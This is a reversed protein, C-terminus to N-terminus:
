YEYKHKELEKEYGDEEEAMRVYDFRGNEDLPIDFYEIMLSRNEKYERYRGRMVDDDAWQEWEELIDRYYVIKKTIVLEKSAFSREEGDFFGDYYETGKPIICLVVMNGSQYDEVCRLADYFDCYSHFAGGTLGWEFLGNNDDGYEQALDRSFANRSLNERDIYGDLDIATEEKEKYHTGPTVKFGQFPTKFKLQDASELVQYDNVTLCKFCVIDEKAVKPKPKYGEAEKEVESLLHNNPDFREPIPTYMKLCM